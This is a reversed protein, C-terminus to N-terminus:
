RIKRVSALLFTLDFLSLSLFLPLSAVKRSKHVFARGEIMSLCVSLIFDRMAYEPSPQFFHDTIIELESQSFSLITQLTLVHVPISYFYASVSFLLSEFNGHANQTVFRYFSCGSNKELPLPLNILLWLSILPIRKTVCNHSM